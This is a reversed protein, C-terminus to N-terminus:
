RTLEALDTRWLAHRTLVYVTGDSAVALARLPESSERLWKWDATNKAFPALIGRTAGIFMRDGRSGNAGGVALLESTEIGAPLEDLDSIRGSYPPGTARIRYLREQRRESGDVVLLTGAAPDWTMARPSNVGAAFVPSHAAQDRPTTGDENLRLIKGSYSGLDGVRSPDGGDDLALYLKRDPGVEIRAAPDIPRLPLGALLTEPSVLVDGALEFRVLRGGDKARYVVYVRDRGDSRGATMALMGSGSETVVDPLAAALRPQPDGDRVIVIRGDREGILFRGDSLAAVDVADAFGIAVADVSTDPGLPNPM